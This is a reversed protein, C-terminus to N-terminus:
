RESLLYVLILGLLMFPLILVWYDDSKVARRFFRGKGM